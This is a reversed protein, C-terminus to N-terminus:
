VHARGIQAFHAIHAPLRAGSGGARRAVAPRVRCPTPVGRLLETVSGDAVCIREVADLLSLTSPERASEPWRRSFTDAVADVGRNRVAQRITEGCDPCKRSRQWLAALCGLDFNHGCPVATVCRHVPAETCLKCRVVDTFERALGPQPGCAACASAVNASMPAAIVIYGVAASQGVRAAPLVFIRDGIALPVSCDKGILRDNLWTGNSSEDTLELWRAMSAGGGLLRIAFHHLSVRPDELLIANSDARGCGVSNCDSEAFTSLYFDFTAQAKGLSVLTLLPQEDASSELEASSAASGLDPPKDLIVTEILTTDVDEARAAM